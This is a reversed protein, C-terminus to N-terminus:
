PLKLTKFTRIGKSTHISKTFSTDGIFQELAYIITLLDNQSLKKAM